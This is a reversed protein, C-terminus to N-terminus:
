LVTSGDMLLCAASGGICSEAFPAIAGMAVGSVM